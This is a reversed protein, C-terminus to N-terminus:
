FMCSDGKKQRRLRGSSRQRTRCVTVGGPGQLARRIESRGGRWSRRCGSSCDYVRTHLLANRLRSALKSNLAEGINQYMEWPHCSNDRTNVFGIFLVGM